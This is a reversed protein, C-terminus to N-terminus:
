FGKDKMRQYRRHCWSFHSGVTQKASPLMKMLFIVIKKKRLCCWFVALLVCGQSLCCPNKLMWSFIARPETWPKFHLSPLVTIGGRRFGRIVFIRVYLDPHRSHRMGDKETTDPLFVSPSTPFGSVTQAHCRYGRHNQHFMSTLIKRVFAAKPSSKKM